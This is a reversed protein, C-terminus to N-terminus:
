FTLRLNTLPRTQGIPVFSALFLTFPDRKLLVRVGTVLWCVVGQGPIDVSPLSVRSKPRRYPSVPM